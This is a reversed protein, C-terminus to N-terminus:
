SDIRQPEESRGSKVREVEYSLPLKGKKKLDRHILKLNKSHSKYFLDFVDGAVPVTGVSMDFILNAFMRLLTGKSVGLGKAEMLLYTGMIATAADGVGPVLGILGDLGVTKNIGPITFSNDLLNTFGELRKLRQAATPNKVYSYARNANHLFTTQRSKATPEPSAM